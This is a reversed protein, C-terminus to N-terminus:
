LSGRSEREFAIPPWGHITETRNSGMLVFLPELRM